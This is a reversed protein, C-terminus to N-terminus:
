PVPATAYRWAYLVSDEKGLETKFVFLSHSKYGM